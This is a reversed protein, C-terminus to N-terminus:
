MANVGLIKKRERERVRKSDIEKQVDNDDDDNFQLSKKKEILFSNRLRVDDREFSSRGWWFSHVPVSCKGLMHIDKKEL